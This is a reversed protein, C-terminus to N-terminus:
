CAGVRCVLLAGRAHLVTRGRIMMRVCSDHARPVWAAQQLASWRQRPQVNIFEPDQELAAFADDWLGNKAQVALPYRVWLM